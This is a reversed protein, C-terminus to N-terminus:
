IKPELVAEKEKIIMIIHKNMKKMMMKMNNKNMM